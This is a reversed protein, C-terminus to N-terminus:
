TKLSKLWGTSRPMKSVRIKILKGRTELFLTSSDTWKESRNLRHKVSRRLKRSSMMRNLRRLQSMILSHLSSRSRNKLNLKTRKRLVRSMKIQRHMQYCLNQNEKLHRLRLERSSWLRKLSKRKKLCKDTSRLKLFLQSLNKMLKSNLRCLQLLNVLDPNKLKRKSM